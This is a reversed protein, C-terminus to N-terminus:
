EKIEKNIKREEIRLLIDKLMTTYKDGKEEDGYEEYSIALKRYLATLINATYLTLLEEETFADYVTYLAAIYNNIASEYDKKNYYDDGKDKLSEILGIIITVGRDVQEDM